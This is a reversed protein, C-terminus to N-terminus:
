LFPPLAVQDGERSSVRRGGVGEEKSKVQNDRLTAFRARSLALTLPSRSCFFNSGYSFGESM